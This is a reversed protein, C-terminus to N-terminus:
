FLGIQFIYGGACQNDDLAVGLRHQQCDACFLSQNRTGNVYQQLYEIKKPFIL